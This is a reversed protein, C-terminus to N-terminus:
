KPLLNQVRPCKNLSIYAFNYTHWELHKWLKVNKELTKM